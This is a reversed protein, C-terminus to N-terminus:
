QTRVAVSTSGRTVNGGDKFRVFVRNAAPDFPVNGSGQVFIGFTPTANANITTTVTPGIVSICQGTAPHTECLNYIGGGGNGAFGGGKSVAGNRITVGAINATIGLVVRLGRDSTVSGNANIITTSSGAGIISMGAAIKLAGAAETDTGTSPIMLTYTGSPISVTHPGGPARNAEM